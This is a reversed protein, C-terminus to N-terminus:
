KIDKGGKLVSGTSICGKIGAAGATSVAAAHWWQQQKPM